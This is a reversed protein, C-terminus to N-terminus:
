GVHHLSGVRDIAAPEARADAPRSAESAHGSQCAVQFSARLRELVATAADIEDDDLGALASSMIEDGTKKLTSLTSEAAPRLYLRRARRDDPDPRREVLEAAELRDIMRAVTIPELDMEGALDVQRLGQNRALAALISWQAHSLGLGRVRQDITKRMLRGADYLAFALRRRKDSTMM